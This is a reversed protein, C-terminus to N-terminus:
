SPASNRHARESDSTQSTQRIWSSFVRSLLTTDLYLCTAHVQFGGSYSALILDVWVWVKFHLLRFELKRAKAEEGDEEGNATGEGGKASASVYITAAFCVLKGGAGGGSEPEGRPGYM